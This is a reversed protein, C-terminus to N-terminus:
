GKNRCRLHLHCHELSICNVMAFKNPQFWNHKITPLSWLNFVFAVFYSSHFFGKNWLFIAHLHGFMSIENRMPLLHKWEKKKIKKRNISTFFSQIFLAFNHQLFSLFFYSAFINAIKKGFPIKSKSKRKTKILNNKYKSM